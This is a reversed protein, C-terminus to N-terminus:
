AATTIQDLLDYGTALRAGIARGEFGSCLKADCSTAPNRPTATSFITGNGFMEFAEDLSLGVGIFRSRRM